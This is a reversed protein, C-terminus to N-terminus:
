EDGDSLRQFRRPRLPTIVGTLFSLLLSLVMRVTAESVPLPPLASPTRRSSSIFAQADTAEEEPVWLRFGGIALQMTFATQGWHENQLFVPIGSARLASAAVQAETLDVFRAIEVLAM